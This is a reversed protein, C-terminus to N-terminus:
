IWVRALSLLINSSSFVLNLGLSTKILADIISCVSEQLSLKVHINEVVSTHVTKEQGMSICFFVIKLGSNRM